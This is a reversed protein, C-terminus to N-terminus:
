IQVQNQNSTGGYTTNILQNKYFLWDEKEVFGDFGNFRNIKTYNDETILHHNLYMSQNSGLANRIEEASLTEAAKVFDTWDGKTTTTM